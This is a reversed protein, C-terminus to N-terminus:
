PAAPAPANYLRRRMEVKYAFIRERVVPDDPDNEYDLLRFRNQFAIRGQRDIALELIGVRNGEEGPSAVITQGSRRADILRQEHGVLLVDVGKVRRTLALASEYPGHYLGVVVKAGAERLARVAVEAAAQPDSAKVRSALPPPVLRFVQPDVLAFLGINVGRREVVHPRPSLLVCTREDPCLQLNNGLLVLDKAHREAYSLLRPVGESLEQDGVALAAYGLEAYTDLVAAALLEDPEVSLVDGCDVLLADHAEPAARLWAARRALGARPQSRCHCGDLNGNLSATYLLTVSAQPWGLVGCLLLAAAALARRRRGMDRMTARGAARLM